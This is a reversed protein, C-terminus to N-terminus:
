QLDKCWCVLLWASKWQQFCKGPSCMAAPYVIPLYFDPSCPGVVYDCNCVMYMKENFLYERIATVEKLLLICRPVFFQQPFTQSICYGFRDAAWINIGCCKLPTNIVTIPWPQKPLLLPVFVINHLHNYFQAQDIYVSLFLLLEVRQTM